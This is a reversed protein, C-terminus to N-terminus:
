IHILSLIPVLWRFSESEKLPVMSEGDSFRIHPIAQPSPVRDPEVQALPFSKRVMSEDMEGAYGIIVSADTWGMTDMFGRAARATSVNNVTFKAKTRKQIEEAPVTGRDRICM